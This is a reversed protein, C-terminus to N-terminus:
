LINHIPRWFYMCGKATLHRSHASAPSTATASAATSAIAAGSTASTTPASIVTTASVPATAVVTASTTIADWACGGESGFVARVLVGNVACLRANYVAIDSAASDKNTIVHVICLHVGSLAMSHELDPGIQLSVLVRQTSCSPVAGRLHRSQLTSHPLETSMDAMVRVVASFVVTAMALVSVFSVAAGVLILRSKNALRVRLLFLFAKSISRVQGLPSSSGYACGSMKIPGWQGLPIKIGYACDSM